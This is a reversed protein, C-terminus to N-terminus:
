ITALHCARPKRPANGGLRPGQPGSAGSNPTCILPSAKDGGWYHSASGILDFQKEDRYLRGGGTSIVLVETGRGLKIIVISM